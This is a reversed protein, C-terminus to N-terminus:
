QWRRKGIKKPVYIKPSDDVVVPDQLLTDDIFCVEAGFPQILERFIIQRAEPEQCQRDMMVLGTLAKLSYAFQPDATSSVTAGILAADLIIPLKSAETNMGM